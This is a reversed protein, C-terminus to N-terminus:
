IQYFYRWERVNFRFFQRRELIFQLNERLKGYGFTQYGSIIQNNGAKGRKLVYIAAREGREAFSESL